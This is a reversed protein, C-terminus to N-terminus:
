RFRRMPEFGRLLTSNTTVSVSSLAMAAGAILPNLFGLAAVPIGITNYALAWFLNQRIKRLTARSLDVAAAVGRLDDRVLTVGAAEIAVDSGSAVAVGLDAAALAPADNVGDGVMAVRRGGQQLGRIRELKEDPLLRALVRDEPIGVQAAVAAATAANDGTLLWVEIGMERLAGVAEVAHPKLTDAAALVGAPEGDAEVLMVTRGQAELDQGRGEPARTVRVRRSGVTAEVGLGPLSRFDTPEVLEIGRALAAAVVARGLPHESRREASAALALVETEGLLEGLAVVDTLAPEGRTLTGTKDFVVARVRGAIELHEGGRFLVGRQAGRGIGVVIATPTALGLACPCAIVLVATMTLLSSTLDQSVALYVVLTLLACGVVFPVFYGSTVDAARQIPAKSGQAEQVMRVIQALMTDRGVRTARFRLYGQRNLSGGIVASGPGKDVPASEGTLMSEDVASTGDVVEGDVPLKEGPLVAVLDGVRVQEVPVEVEAGERWVRATRPRLRVLKQIAESTRGKARAELYKGFLVLTILIASTEFYLGNIGFEFGSLVLYLSYFYAASTGLAVLVSMNASRSRLNLFADRYFVFGAGFQVVTALPLQFWGWMLLHLWTPHPGLIVHGLMSVLLPLSPVAALLFLNRWRRVERERARAIPDEESPRAPAAEYGLDRVVRALEEATVAGAPAEVAGSATVLNVTASLVGPLRQLRREIRAVCNACTMGGITLDLRERPVGYGLGEVTEVLRTVGLSAPDYRVSAQETALNVQATQVGELKQLGRGIRNACAGCTMGSVPLRLEVGPPASV